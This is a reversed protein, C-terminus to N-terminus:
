FRMELGLRIVHDDLNWPIPGAEMDMDFASYELIVSANQVIRLGVGFRYSFYDETDRFSLVEPAYSLGGFVELPLPMARSPFLYGIYGDFALAGVDGSFSSEEADGFLGRFGVECTLGPQINERGVAFSLEVWKYELDDDDTYLGSVGTKMYGTALEKKYHVGGIASTNGANLNAEWGDGWCLGSVSFVIMVLLLSIKRVM